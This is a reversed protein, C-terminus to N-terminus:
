LGRRLFVGLSVPAQEGPVNLVFQLVPGQEHQQRPVLLFRSLARSNGAFPSLHHGSGAFLGGDGAEGGLATLLGEFLLFAPPLARGCTRSLLEDRLGISGLITPLPESLVVWFIQAFSGVRSRARSDVM